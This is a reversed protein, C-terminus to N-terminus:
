EASFRYETKQVYEASADVIVSPFEPHNPADVYGSPEVCFAAYRGYHEGSRGTEDLSNGTYFQFGPQTTWVTLTRGSVPAHVTAARCLGGTEGDLVYYHDYGGAMELAPYKEGIRSGVPRPESFDMPTGAVPVVEGTPILDGDTALYNSSALEATHDLVTGRGAGALNFYPHSTMSVPTPLDRSQARYEIRLGDALLVYTVVVSLNGPYGQDGHGSFLKLSLAPGDPHRVIEGMWVRRNFGRPGGHLQHGRWNPVLQWTCGDLAFRAHAVRNAVRGITAGLCAQGRVYEELGDYGLVVEGLAGDRDPVLLSVLTAGYESVQARLGNERELTFLRVAYGEPGTGWSQQLVPM